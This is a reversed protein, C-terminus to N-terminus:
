AGLFGGHVRDNKEAHVKPSGIDRWRMGLAGKTLGLVEPLGFAATAIRAVRAPPENLAVYPTDLPRVVSIPRGLFVSRCLRLRVVSPWQSPFGTGSFRALTHM